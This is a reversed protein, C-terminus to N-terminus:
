QVEKLTNVISSEYGGSNQMCRYPLSKQKSSSTYPENNEMFQSYEIDFRSSKEEKDEKKKLQHNLTKNVVLCEDIGCYSGIYPQCKGDQQERNWSRSSLRGIRCLCTKQGQISM